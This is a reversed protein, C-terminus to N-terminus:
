TQDVDPYFKTRKSIRCLWVFCSNLQWFKLKWKREEKQVYFLAIKVIILLVQIWAKEEREREKDWRKDLFIIDLSFFLSVLYFFYYSFIFTGFILKTLFSLYFLFSKIRIKFIKKRTFFLMFILKNLFFHITVHM